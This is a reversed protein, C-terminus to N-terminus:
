GTMKRMAALHAPSTGCCGGVIRVGCALLRPVLGAMQDPTAVYTLKGDVMQPAGANPQIMVPVGGAARVVQDALIAYDELTMGTGCNAGVVSAGADIATRIATDVNSGMMTRFVPGADFAFTALVPLGTGGRAAEIALRSENPDSMTEVIIGDAGGAELARAQEMFSELVQEPDDDGVPEIFGGYPGVDGLVYARDGATERALQAAALNLEHADVGEGQREINMRSAGFTNTTIFDCGADLYAAHVERVADPNELSWLEAGVGTPLGRLILQTGMGGDCLLPRAALQQLWGQGTRM